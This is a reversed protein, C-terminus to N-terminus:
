HAQFYLHLKKAVIRLALAIQEVQSHQTETDILAKSMYYVPRQENSQNHWFLVISVIFDSM